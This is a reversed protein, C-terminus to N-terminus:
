PLLHFGDVITSWPIVQGLVALVVICLIVVGSFVLVYEVLAQGQIGDVKLSVPQEETVRRHGL